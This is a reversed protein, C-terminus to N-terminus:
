KDIDETPYKKGRTEVYFEIDKTKFVKKFYNMVKKTNFKKCSYVDATVFRRKIFTHLSVHSEQILVFGSWGGPDRIKNAKAFVVHPKILKRMGIKEPLSDLLDYVLNQDNLVEASCNYIDLMLHIGFPAQKRKKMEDYRYYVNNRHFLM